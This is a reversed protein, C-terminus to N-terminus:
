AIIWTGTKGELADLAQKLSCIIAYEGGSEAFKIAAKVKPGMSGPPFRGEKLYTKAQSFNMRDLDKQCDKQCSKGFNIAAKLVDTLMMFIDARVGFALREGALDKDIVAEVGQFGEDKKIVPIGGGSAIVVINKELLAKIAEKEANIQFPSFDRIRKEKEKEAAGKIFAKCM